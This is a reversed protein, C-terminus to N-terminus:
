STSNKSPLDIAADTAANASRRTVITQWVLIGIGVFGGVVGIITAGLYCRYLFNKTPDYNQLQVVFDATRPLVKRITSTLKAIQQLIKKKVKASNAVSLISDFYFSLQLNL